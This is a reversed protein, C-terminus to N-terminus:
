PIPINCVHEYVAEIREASKEWSSEARVYNRANEGLRRALAPESLLQRTAEAFAIVDGNEVVLGREGHTLYKASGAFSVIPKGAAMYNVLKQPIGDCDIRPNLAVDAGALYKPLADFRSPVIDIYSRIGLTSALSEYRDFSDNSVILLRVDQRKRRIEKFAKLLFDIGQYAAMNGTFILSKTDAHLELGEGPTIAFHQHEVGNPIVTINEPGVIKGSILKARIDETVTTVHSARKALRTDLFRSIWKKVKYSLGLRYFPLESELLTHVDFVIPLQICKQALLSILLGEYHHAHILDFQYARLVKLLKLVM